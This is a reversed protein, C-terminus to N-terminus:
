SCSRCCGSWSCGLARVFRGRLSMKWTRSGFWLGSVMSGGAFAALLFGAAGKVGHEEAFAVTILDVSGFM